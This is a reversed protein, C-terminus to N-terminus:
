EAFLGLGPKGSQPEGRGRKGAVPSSGVAPHDFGVGGVDLPIDIFIQDFQAYDNTEGSPLEEPQWDRASFTL